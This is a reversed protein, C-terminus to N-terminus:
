KKPKTQQLAKLIAPDKRTKALSLPTEGARNKVLTKAGRLLLAETGRLSGLRVAEHLPTDGADDTTGIKAGADLLLNIGIAEGPDVSMTQHPKGLQEYVHKEQSRYAFPGWALPTKGNRDRAELDAGAEILIKIAEVRREQVALHLPTFGDHPAPENASAGLSLLLRLTSAHGYKAAAHMAHDRDVEKAGRAILLPILEDMGGRAALTVAGDPIAIGARLLALAAEKKEFELAWLLATGYPRASASLLAKHEAIFRNYQAPPTDKPLADFERLLAESAADSRPSADVKAAPPPPTALVVPGAFLLLLLPGGFRLSAHM